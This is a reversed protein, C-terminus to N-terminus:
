RARLSRWPKASLDGGADQAAVVEIPALLGQEAQRRNSEYQEKALRVAEKQVDLNQWAYALEWYYQVAQTM